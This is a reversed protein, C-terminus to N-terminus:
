AVDPPNLRMNLVNSGLLHFFSGSLLLIEICHLIGLLGKIALHPTLSVFLIM